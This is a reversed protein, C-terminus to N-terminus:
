NGLPIRISITTGIGKDSSIDLDGNLYEVRSRLSKLGLGDHATDMDFGVGDDEVALMLEGDYRSLQIIVKSARAHKVINTVLEQAIRFMMVEASEDIRTDMGIIQVQADIGHVRKLSEGLDSIADPLGGVTLAAPMMDHSIRRVEDCASDLMNVAKEYPQFAHLDDVVKQVSEFSMKITSLIGGLGDHLDKAIRKREAEQGSIMADMALIKNEQKLAEIEQQKIQAEQQAIRKQSRNRMWLVYGGFGGTLLLMLSALLLANRQGTRKRIEIQSALLEREKQETEFKINLEDIRKRSEEDNLTVILDQLRRQVQLAEATNGSREYAVSLRDLPFLKVGDFGISDALAVGAELPVIAAPYKEDRILRDGLMGYALILNEPFQTKQLEAVLTQLDELTVNGDPDAFLGELHVAMTREDFRGFDMVERYETLYSDFKELEGTNRYFRVLDYLAVGRSIRDDSQRSRDYEKLYYSEAQAQDNMMEYVSAILGYSSINGPRESSTGELEELIKLWYMASDFQGSIRYIMGLRALASMREADYANQPYRAILDLYRSKAAPYNGMAALTSAIRSEAVATLKTDEIRVALNLLLTYYHLSSDRNTISFSKAKEFLLDAEVQRDQGTTLVSWFLLFGSIYYRILVPRPGNEFPDHEHRFNSTKWYSL